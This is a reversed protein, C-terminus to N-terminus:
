SSDSLSVTEQAWEYDRDADGCDAEELVGTSDNAVTTCDGTEVLSFDFKQTPVLLLCPCFDVDSFSSPSPGCRCLQWKRRMAADLSLSLRAHYGLECDCFPNRLWQHKQCRICLCPELCVHKPGFPGLEYEALVSDVWRIGGKFCDVEARGTSHEANYGGGNSDM